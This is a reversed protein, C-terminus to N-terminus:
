KETAQEVILYGKRVTSSRKFNSSDVTEFGAKDVLNLYEELDQTTMQVIKMAQGSTSEM